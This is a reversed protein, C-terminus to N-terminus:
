TARVVVVTANDTAGRLNVLNLLRRAADEASGSAERTLMKELDAAPIHNTLGDSCVLVWDGRKMKGSYVDPEVSAHGGIAQQLQNKNDATEAEEATMRGLEVLRNVVTQDRTLQILRGQHLHYTRSDGVHGVVVHNCDIYVAEATCGMGRKGKGPTRAATFVEKNAHRLAAVLLEKAAPVHDSSLPPPMDKGALGACLPKDLLFKRLEAVALAAAIEGAEYGGMGDALLVLAYEHVDDQRGEVGHLFAFADENGTRIMGTTTWAAIDLRIKDLNRRCVGLVNILETFGSPDVKTMEDSPFRAWIDRVFTKNLLRPLLPHVDPYRDTIQRPSFQREFDKEELGHHLYELSYLTAGLSYLDARADASAPDLILEPATYLGARIPASPPIPLPLLDTLDNITARDMQTVTVLDPRVGELIAGAKHLAQLAEALQQLYGYRGNADEADDWADWLSRGQPVEEVLYDTNDEVFNDIVRPLGPHNAKELLAKEWSVGPWGAASTDAVPVVPVDDFGPMINDDDLVTVEDELLAVEPMPSAVIVVPQNTTVDIGRHRRVGMKEGILERVEFRNQLRVSRVPNSAAPVAAAALPATLSATAAFDDPFMFGCDDCYKAPGRVQAQCCPCSLAVPQAVPLAVAPPQVVPRAVPLSEEVLPVVVPAALPIPPEHVVPEATPVSQAIPALEETADAAATDPLNAEQPVTADEKKEPSETSAQGTAAQGTAAQGISFLRAWLGGQKPPTPDSM